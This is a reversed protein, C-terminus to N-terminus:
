EPTLVSSRQPEIAVCRGGQEASEYAKAVVRSTQLADDIGIRPPSGTRVCTVFHEIESAFRHPLDSCDITTWAKEDKLRHSLEPKDPAFYNVVAAGCDGVWELRNSSAPTSYSNVLQAVAGDLRLQMAALDEVAAKQVSNFAIAQVATPEGALHRLLDVAHAGNDMLCGGGSLERNARHNGALPFWASFTALFFVPRGLKGTEILEKLRVIPPHFRHCYATMFLSDSRDVALALQQAQDFTAALPKECLVPIGAEVFPLCSAVHVGPPSCISVADLEANEAMWQLSPAVKADNEAALAEAAQTAVDYVCVIQCQETQRYANAHAHAIGGCGVLGIRLPQM